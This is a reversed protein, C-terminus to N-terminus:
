GKPTAKDNAMKQFWLDRASDVAIQRAETLTTSGPISRCELADECGEMDKGFFGPGFVSYHWRNGVSCPGPVPCLVLSWGSHMALSSAPYTAAPAWLWEGQDAPLPCDPEAPPDIQPPGSRLVLKDVMPRIAECALREAVAWSSVKEQQQPARIAERAIDAAIDGTFGVWPQPAQLKKLRACDASLKENAERMVRICTVLQDTHEFPGKRGLAKTVAEILDSHERHLRQTEIRQQGLRVRQRDEKTLGQKKERM